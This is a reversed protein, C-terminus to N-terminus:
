CVIILQKRWKSFGILVLYFLLFCKTKNNKYTKDQKELHRFCCKTAPATINECNTESLDSLDTERKEMSSM